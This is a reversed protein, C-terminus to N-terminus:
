RKPSSPARAVWLESMLLLVALVLFERWLERGFRAANVVDALSEGDQLIRVHSGLRRQVQEAPIRTLDAEENDVNVSFVDVVAGQMHMRWIGAEDLEPVKWLRQEGLVETQVVIRRGSPAEAEVRAAVDAGPLRRWARDGVIYAPGRTTSQALYRVMRQM